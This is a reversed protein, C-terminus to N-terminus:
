EIKIVRSPYTQAPAAVTLGALFLLLGAVQRTARFSMANSGSTGIKNALSACAGAIAKGIWLRAILLEGGGRATSPV